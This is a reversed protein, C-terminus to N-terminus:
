KVDKESYGEMEDLQARFKALNETKQKVAEDYAAEAEKFNGNKAYGISLDAYIIGITGNLDEAKELYIIAKDFNEATMYLGGLSVYAIADEPAVEIAKLYYQEATVDDKNYRYLIAINNYDNASASKKLEIAQKRYSIATEYDGRQSYCNSIYIYIMDKSYSCEENLAQKFYSEAEEFKQQKFCQAGSQITMDGPKMCSVITISVIVTLLMLVISKPLNYFKNKM